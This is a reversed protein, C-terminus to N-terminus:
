FFIFPNISVLSVNCYKFLCVLLSIYYTLSLVVSFLLFGLSKISFPSEGGMGRYFNVRIMDGSFPINESSYSTELAIVDQIHGQLNTAM